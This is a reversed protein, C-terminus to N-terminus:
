GFSFVITNFLSEVVFAFSPTYQHHKKLYRKRSDLFKGKFTESLEQVPYLFRSTKGIQKWKGQLSYGAPPVLCHIHPHLWLNQGWSHLM